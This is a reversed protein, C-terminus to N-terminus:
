IKIKNQKKIKKSSLKKSAQKTKVSKQKVSIIDDNKNKSQKMIRKFCKKKSLNRISKSFGVM